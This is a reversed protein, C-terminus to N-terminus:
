EEELVAKLYSLIPYLGAFLAILFGYKGEKYGKRGVYCKYFRSFIRRVNRAFGVGDPHERLDRAKATTYRDLRRIMDSIDRDVYHLIRHELRREPGTLRLSPHVREMGWRKTEKRSLRAAASAGWAAGWGYRVLRDGVYNDFPILFYGDDHAALAARIEAALEETVREDADLELIWDNACADRGTNRREGEIEWSGEVVRDARASAIAKSGDTCKDLVVVLEDAFALTELCEALQAEENHAVVLASLRSAGVGSM